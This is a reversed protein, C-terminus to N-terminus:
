NINKKQKYIALKSNLEEGTAKYYWYLSNLIGLYFFIYVGTFISLNSLNGFDIWEYISIFIFIIFYFLVFHIFFKRKMSLQKLIFEGFILYQILVLAVTVIVLQWVATFEMYTKGLFMSVITYIIIAAAYFLGWVFKFQMLLEMSKKM